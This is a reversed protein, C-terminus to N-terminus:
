FTVSLSISISKMPGSLFFSNEGPDESFLTVYNRMSCSILAGQLNIKHLM